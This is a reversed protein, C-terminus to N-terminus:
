DSMSEDYERGAQGLRQLAAKDEEFEKVRVFGSKATEAKLYSRGCKM